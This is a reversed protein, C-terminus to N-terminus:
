SIPLFSDRNLIGNPDMSLKIGRLIELEVHPIIKRALNLKKRGIGHEAFVSGGLDLVLDYLMESVQDGYRRFVIGDMDEPQSFNFHINGTGLHGFPVPRIGPVIAEAAECGERILRPVNVVPVIVDHKISVGARSQAAPVSTRILWLRDSEEASNAVVVHSVTGVSKADNLFILVRDRLLITPDGGASAFDRGGGSRTSAVELLVYWSHDLDLQIDHGLVHNRVMTISTKPLLEFSVLQKGFEGRACDLLEVAMSPCSLGCFAAIRATFSPFLSLVAATIIGFVGETGIFLRNLDCGAGKGGPKTLGNWVTGDPLVVELGSVMRGANGYALAMSGGADTSINGGITCDSFLGLPFLKGVSKAVDQVVKLRTGAEVTITNSRTDIERIKDLQELSLLIQNGSQDPIQGGVLGTNGGQTVIPVCFENSIRVISVVEELLKPKVVALARGQFSGRPGLLHSAMDGQSVLIGSPDLINALADIVHDSM